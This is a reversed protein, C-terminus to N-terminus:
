RKKAGKKKRKSPINKPVPVREGQKPLFKSSPTDFKEKKIESIHWIDGGYYPSDIIAAYNDPNLHRLPNAITQEQEYFVKQLKEAVSISDYPTARFHEIWQAFASKPAEPLQMGSDLPLSFNEFSLSSPLSDTYALSFKIEATPYLAVTYTKRDGAYRYDADVKLYVFISGSASIREGKQFSYVYFDQIFSTKQITFEGISLSSAHSDAQLTKVITPARVSLEKQLLQTFGSEEQTLYERVSEEDIGQIPTYHAALFEGFSEYYYFTKGNKAALADIEEQLQPHLIGAQKDLRQGRVQQKGAAAKGAGFANSDNSILVLEDDGRGLSGAFVDLVTEWVLCDKYENNNQQNFPKRKEMARKAIRETFDGYPLVNELVDFHLKKRLWELYYEGEDEHLQVRKFDPQNILVRGLAKSAKEYASHRTFLDDQYNKRTEEWVIKPVYIISSTREVYSLFAKADDTRLMWDGFLINTDILVEM